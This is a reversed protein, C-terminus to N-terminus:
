CLVEDLCWIRFFEVKITTKVVEGGEIRVGCNFLFLLSGGNCLVFFKSFCRAM